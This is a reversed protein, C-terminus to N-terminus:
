AAALLKAVTTISAPEAGTFNANYGLQAVYLSHIGKAVMAQIDTQLTDQSAPQYPSWSEYFDHVIVSSKSLQTQDTGLKDLLAPTFATYGDTSPDCAYGNFDVRGVSHTYCAEIDVIADAVDFLSESGSQVFTGPNLVVPGAFKSKAYKTIATNHSLQSTSTDIEDFFIGDVHIDYSTGATWGEATTWATYQDVAAEVDSDSKGGYSTAIYGILKVNSLANWVGLFSAFDKIADPPNPTYPPGSNDNVIVYFDVDPHATAAAIAGNWDATAVDGSPYEYLPLIIGPKAAASAVLASLSLISYRM